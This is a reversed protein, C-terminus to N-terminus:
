APAAGLTSAPSATAAATGPPDGIRDRFRLIRDRLRAYQSASLEPPTKGTFLKARKRASERSRVVLAKRLAASREAQAMLSEYASLILEPSHCIEILDMGARLAAVSAEEMPMFNLIGGMELDDSFILGRYGIRLRLITTIWFYSVSAPTNGSRTSPYAAHNVMIMPLNDRLTRYPLLDDRWLEDFPRSISPTEAHSDLTGAGLGPFHKGCAVVNHSRIGALFAAAYAILSKADPAACRTGMVKSSEPLGIDLVPALTTNFGFARVGRAILEGHERALATRGTQAAKRAVSQASPIPALADRLRDVAGGEVDVCRLAHPACLSTAERLLARTQSPDVINRKFLIIGAPRVLKLWARELGTLEPGSLGVVLLSGAAHRLNATM